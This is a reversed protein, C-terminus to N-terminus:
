TCKVRWNRYSKVTLNSQQICVYVSRKRSLRHRMRRYVKGLDTKQFDKDLNGVRIKNILDIFKTGGRQRMVETLEAFQLMRWLNLALHGELSDCSDVTAYVPKGMVSPLQLLNAVLLVTLGAFEVATSCIFIELVWPNLKFFLNSSAMSFEDIIVLKKKFFCKKCLKKGVSTACVNSKTLAELIQVLKM